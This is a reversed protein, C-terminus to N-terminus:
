EAHGNRDLRRQQIELEGSTCGYEDGEQSFEWKEAAKESGTAMRMTQRVARQRRCQGVNSTLKYM